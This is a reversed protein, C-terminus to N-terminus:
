HRTLRQRWRRGPFRASGPPISGPSRGITGALLVVFVLALFVPLGHPTWANMAAGALAPGALSGIGYAVVIAANMAILEANRFRDGAMGLAVPYIAGAIGGWCLLLLYLSPRTIAADPLLLAGAAGVGGCFVLAAKRGAKDSLWGVPVQLGIAGIYVASITAAAASTGLGTRVSWIPLLTLLSAEYLGFLAVVFIIFPARAFMRLTSPGRGQGFGHSMEPLALLPLAAVATIAANALFPPWGDIGTFTLLLPGLGFGASLAAAYIGVIRGRAADSALSNIWGESGAFIGSGIVGSVMRLAFWAGLSQFVNMTLFVVTDLAFCAILFRRIGLTRILYPTLLPGLIVGIFTAGANLGTVTPNTGRRDLLLSLLPVGEGVSLGFVAVSGIAVALGLRRQAPTLASSPNTVEAM